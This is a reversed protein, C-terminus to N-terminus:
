ALPHLIRQKQDSGTAVLALRMGDPSLITSAGFEIYLSADVGIEASLRMPQPPKPARLVFGIAFAITTVIFVLAAAWAARERWGRTAPATTLAAMIAPAALAEQIEIQADGADRLRLRKDKQLCHRLLDRVKM